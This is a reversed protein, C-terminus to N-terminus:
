DHWAAGCKAPRLGSASIPGVAGGAAKKSRLMDTRRKPKSARQARSLRSSQPRQDTAFQGIRRISRERAPAAAGCPSPSAAVAEATQMEHVVRVLAAHGERGLTVIPELWEDHRAGARSRTRFARLGNSGGRGASGGDALVEQALERTTLLGLRRMATVELGPRGLPSDGRAACAPSRYEGSWRLEEVAAEVDRRSLGLREELVVALPSSSSSSGSPAGAGAGRGSLGSAATSGDRTAPTTGSRQSAPSRPTGPLTLLSGALELAESPELAPAPWLDWGAADGGGFRASPPPSQRSVARLRAASRREMVRDIVMNVTSAAQMAAAVTASSAAQRLLPYRRQAREWAESSRGSGGRGDGSGGPAAQSFGAALDALSLTKSAPSSPSSAAVIAAFRDHRRPVAEADPANGQLASAIEAASREAEGDAVQGAEEGILCAAADQGVTAETQRAADRAPQEEVADAPGTAGDDRACGTALRAEAAALRRRFPASGCLDLLRALQDDPLITAIQAAAAIQEQACFEMKDPLLFGMVRMRASGGGSPKASAAASTGAAVSRAQDLVPTAAELIRSSMALLDAVCLLVATHGGLAFIGDWLILVEELEADSRPLAYLCSLRSWCFVGCWDEGPGQCAQLADYLTPDLTSIADRVCQCAESVAPMGASWWWTPILRRRIGRMCWFAEAEPMVLLLLGAVRNLGQAYLVVGSGGGGDSSPSSAARTAPDAEICAVLDAQDHASATLVHLISEDPVIHRFSPASRLTRPVDKALTESGEFSGRRLCAEYLANLEAKPPPSRGLLNQWVSRRLAAEPQAHLVDLLSKGDNLPPAASGVMNPITLRPLGERSLALQRLRTASADAASAFSVVTCSRVLIQMVIALDVIKCVQGHSVGLLLLPKISAGRPNAEHHRCAAWLQSLHSRHLM